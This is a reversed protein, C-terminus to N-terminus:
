KVGVFFRNSYVALYSILFLLLRMSKCEYFVGM